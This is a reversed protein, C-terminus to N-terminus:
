KQGPSIGLLRALNLGLIARKDEVPIRAWAIWGIQSAPDILLADSGFLVRRAGAERIIYRVIGAPTTPYAPDAYV